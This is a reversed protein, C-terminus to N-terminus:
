HAHGSPTSKSESASSMGALAAKLKSESDILFNGSVVVREGESIGELVEYENELRLGIKLERPEFVGDDKEVFAVSRIGTDLVASDPVALRAGLDARLVVDAFMDPKLEFVPNPFEIRIQVTRTQPDVTPYIFSVKGDFTKGPLYSLTMTAAQGVQVFRLEYEYVSALVWVRTLDVVDLLTMGSAIKQGQAVNRATIVGSIPAYVTVVREPTGTRELRDIQEGSMDFLQLRRRSSVVLEDGYGAVAAISSGETRKRAAIAVLYENQSALLEPSYIELLPQGKRVVEGVANAYLREVYGDIKTTVQRLRTEDAVVRGVARLTREFAKKTVPATRVGILQRKQVNMRIKALGSVESGSGGSDVPIEEAVLDMGMSDKGPRDSVEGPNMTSRWVTKTKPPTADSEVGHDESIPVLDMGCIRCSGPKDSVITPHMACHYKAAAPASTQQIGPHWPQVVLVATAVIALFAVLSLTAVLSRKSM